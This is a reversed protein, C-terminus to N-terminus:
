RAQSHEGNLLHADNSCFTSQRQALCPSLITEGQQLHMGHRELRLSRVIADLM